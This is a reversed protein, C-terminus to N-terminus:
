QVEMKAGCHCYPYEKLGADTTLIRRGCISCEHSYTQGAEALPLKIWKGVKSEEVERDLPLTMVLFEGLTIQGSDVLRCAETYLDRYTM